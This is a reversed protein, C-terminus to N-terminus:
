TAESIVAIALWVIQEREVGRDFRGAGALGSATEGNDRLLDLRQRRLGRLRQGLALVLRHRDPLDDPDHLIGVRRHRFRHQLHIRNRADIESAM